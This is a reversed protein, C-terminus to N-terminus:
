DTGTRWSKVDVTFPPFNSVTVIATNTAAAGGTKDKSTVKVTRFPPPPKGAGGPAKLKLSSSTASGKLFLTDAVLGNQAFTVTPNTAYFRIAAGRAYIKANFVMDPNANPTDLVFTATSPMDFGDGSRAAYLSMPVPNTATVLPSYLAFSGKVELRSNGGFVWTAGGNADITSEDVLLREVPTLATLVRNDDFGDCASATLADVNAPIAKRGARVNSNGEVDILGANRFYYTGSVFYNDTRTLIPDSSYIGPFFVKCGAIQKGNILLSAIDLSPPNPIVVPPLAKAVIQETCAKLGGPGSLTLGSLGKLAAACGDSGTTYAVIDGNKVAIEKPLTARPAALYISGDVEFAAGGGQTELSTDSTGTILIVYNTAGAEGSLAARGAITQCTYDVKQDNLEFGGAEATITTPAVGVTPCVDPNSTATATVMDDRLLQLAREVGGDLAYQLDGRDRVVQGSALTTQSKRLAVTAFLSVILIFVLAMILAVGEDGRQRQSIRM